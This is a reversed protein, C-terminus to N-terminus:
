KNSANNGSSGRVVGERHAPSIEKSTTTTMKANRMKMGSTTRANSVFGNRLKRNDM